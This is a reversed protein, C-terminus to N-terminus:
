NNAAGADIWCIISNKQASTLSTGQPMLASIIAPRILAKAASIQAYTTLPGPGNLSGANHCGSQGCVAQFIPFVDASFSTAAGTCNPVFVTGGGGNNGGSGTGPGGSKSCSVFLIFSSIVVSLAIGKM